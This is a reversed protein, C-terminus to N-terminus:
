SLTAKRKKEIVQQINKEKTHKHRNTHLKTEDDIYESNKKYLVVLKKKM